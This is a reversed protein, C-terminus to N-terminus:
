KNILENTSLLSYAEPKGNFLAKTRTWTDAFFDSTRYIELAEKNDWKSFTYFVNSENADACLEVHNCGPFKQIKHQVEEFLLNFDQIKNPKFTMRVIRILM